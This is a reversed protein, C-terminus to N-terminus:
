RQISAFSDRSTIDYVLIVGHSGRYYVQTLSRFREEGATDWIQLKIRQQDLELLHTKFDVGITMRYKDSFSDEALRNILSTKGVGVDGVISIKFFHDYLGHLGYKGDQCASKIAVQCM